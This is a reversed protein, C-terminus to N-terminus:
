FGAPLEQWNRDPWLCYIGWGYNGTFCKIMERDKRGRSEAGGSLTECSVLVHLSLFFGTGYDEANERL